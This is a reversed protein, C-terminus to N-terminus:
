QQSGDRFYQEKFQDLCTAPTSFKLFDSIKQYIFAKKVGTKRLYQISASGRSKALKNVGDTMLRHHHFVTSMFPQGEKLNSALQIQALTSEWLDAGRVILDIGYYMDDLVSSLQYAPSGDKKRIVFDTMGAPFDTTVRQNPYVRIPVSNELNSRFRWCCGKKDLPIKLHKCFGPYGKSVEANAIKKRSCVCAFCSDKENLELLAKEYHDMRLIQSYNRKFDATDIPGEDWPIELFNLTDFIDDIYADKIRTRDLDDIRLFVRARHKAALASTILFSLVNGLHLYGSPTPAIRTKKFSPFNIM